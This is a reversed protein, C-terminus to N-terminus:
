EKVKGKQKHMIAAVIVLVGVIATLVVGTTCLSDDLSGEEVPVEIVLPETTFEGSEDIFAFGLRFEGQPAKNAWVICSGGDHPAMAARYTSGATVHATTISVPGAVTTGDPSMQSYSLDADGEYLRVLVHLNGNDGLEVSWPYPSSGETFQLYEDTLLTGDPKYRLHLIYEDMWDMLYHLNNEGDPFAWKMTRQSVGADDTVYCYFGAKLTSVHGTSESTRNFYMVGSSVVLDPSIDSGDSALGIINCNNRGENILSYYITDDDGISVFIEDYYQGGGSLSGGVVREPSSIEKGDTRIKRHYVQDHDDGHFVHIIDRSYVVVGVVHIKRYSESL